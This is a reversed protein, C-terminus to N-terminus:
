PQKQNKQEETGARLLAAVGVLSSSLLPSPTLTRGTEELVIGLGSNGFGLGGYQEPVVIAAWGMSVMEEWIEASFGTESGEDRLSRLRSVPAQSQLFARASEQLMVQEENLVLAM